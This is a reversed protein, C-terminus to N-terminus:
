DVKLVKAGHIRRHKLDMLAQNADKLDYVQVQPRLKMADALSLLDRVDQRTVNAVSQIRHEQWLDTAYDLETLAQKDVDEKRIANIVLRGGPALQGLTLVVPRWVPTTDIIADLQVPCSQGFDGAWAAGLEMAFARESEQRAFVFVEIDPFLYRVIQLVIHASAGFGSLGLRDGKKLRALRVARYGVAGACLLPAAEVDSLYSPIPYVFGALAKIYQAYGGDVDRGTAVFARCLNELGQQCYRCRGCASYIWAVGIRQGLGLGEVGPGLQEIRGIVQHGPVVPLRPPATRGTVEDLETHCVGCASVRILVERPGAVPISVDTYSLVPEDNELTNLANIVMAKM